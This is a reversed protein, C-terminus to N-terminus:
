RKRALFENVGQRGSMIMNDKEITELKRPRPSMGLDNIYVTRSLDKPHAPSVNRMVVTSLASMYSSFDNIEFPAIGHENRQEHDIQDCRELRFGLTEENFIAEPEGTHDRIYKSHDFINIPFNLLLGGDVFLEADDEPKPNDIVKGEPNIWIAGYYLPISMSVRVADAVRMKPYTEHSFIQYHQSSLNVGVVYLDRFPYSKALEHLEEFTLNPDGTRNAILKEMTKLFTDGKFWGYKKFLRKTGYAVFGDDNFSEIPTDSIIQSIEECSYGVALLSAQIAGASTGAVREISKLIGRKELEAMAGGYAVGKIGGGEMVLNRYVHESDQATTEIQFFAFCFLILFARIMKM